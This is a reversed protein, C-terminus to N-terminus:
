KAKVNPIVGGSTPVVPKQKPPIPEIVVPPVIPAFHPILPPTTEDLTNLNALPSITVTPSSLVGSGFPMRVDILQGDLMFASTGVLRGLDGTAQDLNAKASVSGENAIRAADLANALSARATIVKKIAQRIEDKTPM